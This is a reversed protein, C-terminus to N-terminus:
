LLFLFIGLLALTFFFFKVIWDLPVLELKEGLPNREEDDEWDPDPRTRCM